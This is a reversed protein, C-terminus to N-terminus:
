GEVSDVPVAIQPLADIINAGLFGGQRHAFFPSAVVGKRKRLESSGFDRYAQGCKQSPLLLGDIVRKSPGRRVGAIRHGMCMQSIVARHFAVTVELHESGFPIQDRMPLMVGLRLRSRTQRRRTQRDVRAGRPRKPLGLGGQAENQRHLTGIRDQSGLRNVLKM